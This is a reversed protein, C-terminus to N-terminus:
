GKLGGSAIGELMNRQFVVFLLIMPISALFSGAMLVPYNTLFQGQLTALGASLTMQEPDSNVVLPWLLDNWSWIATLIGLALMGNRALPLMVRWWVQFPNCGDLRAADDLEDPLQLFFQRMLFTGFASFIGPLALATVTNLLGLNQMIQFQSLLFLQSPIMLVSLFLVFLVGRGPFRLKAFAYGAASCFLVQGATRAVTMILTNGFQAGFPLSSFVDAYNQWVPSSPLVTPPVSSSEAYTKLSTSIEWFFPAVMLLAGIALIAHVLVHPRRRRRPAPVTASPM